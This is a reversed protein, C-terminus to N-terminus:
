VGSSVPARSKQMCFDLPLVNAIPMFRSLFRTGSLEADDIRKQILFTIREFGRTRSIKGNFDCGRQSDLSHLFSPFPSSHFDMDVAFLIRTYIVLLPCSPPSPTHIAAGKCKAKVHAVHYTLQTVIHM